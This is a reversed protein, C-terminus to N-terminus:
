LWVDAYLNNGSPDTLKLESGPGFVAEDIIFSDTLDLEDPSSIDIFVVGSYNNGTTMGSLQTLPLIVDGNSNRAEIRIDSTPISQAGDINIVTLTWNGGFPGIKNMAVQIQTPGGNNQNNFMHEVDLYWKENVLVCPVRESVTMSGQTISVSLEFAIVVYETVNVGLENEIENIRTNMEGKETNNLAQESFVTPGSVINASTFGSSIRQNVIPVYDSSNSTLAWITKEVMGQANHANMSDIFSNFAQAPTTAGQGQGGGGFGQSLFPIIVTPVLIIVAIIVVVITIVIGLGKRSKKRPPQSPQQNQASQSPFPQHSPIQVATQPIAALSTGCKGCFRAGVINNFGCRNCAQPTMILPAACNSCFKAGDTNNFGCKACSAM